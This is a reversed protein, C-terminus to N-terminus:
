ACGWVTVQLRRERPGDLEAAIVSQFRGRVLEGQAVPLTLSQGLLLARLHADANARECDSFRPDNHKWYAGAAVAQELFARIDDLLAAQFENIFVALTTHLSNVLVLGEGIGSQRVCAAVRATIDVLEVRERTCLRLEAAKLVGGGFVRRGGTACIGRHAGAAM